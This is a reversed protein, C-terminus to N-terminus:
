AGCFKAKGALAAKLAREQKENRNSISKLKAVMKKFQKCYRTIEKATFASLPKGRKKKTSSSSKTSKKKTTSHRKSPRRARGIVGSVIQYGLAAGLAAISFGLYANIAFDVLVALGKVALYTGLGTFISM